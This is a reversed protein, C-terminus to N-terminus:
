DLDDVDDNEEEVLTSADDFTFQGLAIITDLESARVDQSTVEVILDFERPLLTDPDEEKEIILENDLTNEFGQLIIRSNKQALARAKEMDSQTLSSPILPTVTMGCPYDPEFHVPTSWSYLESKVRYSWPRGDKYVLEMDSRSAFVECWAYKLRGDVAYSPSTHWPTIPSSTQPLVNISIKNSGNSPHISLRVHNPFNKRIAEAFAAGRGIMTKAITELNKKHKKNSIGNSKTLELDKTLFKIYGRYTTCIDVDSKIKEDVDFGLPTYNDILRQRFHPALTEYTESDLVIDENWHILNRLRVFDIHDCEKEAVMGRLAQSYMWVESDPVGLIDNYVLGDSAITLQAGATYIEGIAACLGNLHAISVDEGKDPLCGLTKNKQNPSKFPFAPMIMQVPEQTRIQGYIMSLFKLNGEDTRDKGGEPVPTRYQGIISLIDVAKQLAEHDPKFEAFHLTLAALMASVEVTPDMKQHNLTFVHLRNWKSPNLDLLYPVTIDTM